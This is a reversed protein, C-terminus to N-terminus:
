DLVSVRFMRSAPPVRSAALPPEKLSNARRTKTSLAAAVKWSSTVAGAVLDVQPVDGQRRGGRFAPSAQIEVYPSDGSMPDGLPNM